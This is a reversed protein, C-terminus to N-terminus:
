GAKRMAGRNVNGIKGTINFPFSTTGILLFNYPLKTSNPACILMVKKKECKKIYFYIYNILEKLHM